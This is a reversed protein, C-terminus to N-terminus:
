FAPRGPDQLRGLELMLRFVYIAQDVPRLARLSWQRGKEALMAAVQRGEEEDALYRVVEPLDNMGLSISIYHLWPQLREDHWERFVTQKLPLSHSNLLRYFRGSHGNGDLDFTLTYRFAEERPEEDHIQFYEHIADETGQDACQVVGTFHVIYLSQNLASSTREQWPENRYPRWLYTHTRGDLNNAFSVFRQRHDQKWAQDAAEQFSGTTKGAWYLGATKNEWPMDESEEYTYASNLYAAAPFPIDGMTSLVAPSLIPVKARTASFSAPSRWIGHMNSYEPHRCLDVTDSKYACLEFGGIASAPQTVSPIENHRCGATIQDWIHQHSLEEWELLEDDEGRVEGLGDDGGRLVRPEDMENVLMSMEPSHALVGAERLLHLVEGGLPECGAQDQRESPRCPSISPGHIKELRRKVEAGSLSWFPALTENIMDFEDIILSDHRTAFDYWIDFRPPPPRKYRRLYESTAMELSTSQRALLEDFDTEAKRVLTKIPHEVVATSTIDLQTPVPFGASFVSFIKPPAPYGLFILLTLSLLTVWIALALARKSKLFFRAGMSSKSSSAKRPLTALGISNTKSRRSFPLTVRELFGDSILFQSRFHSYRSIQTPRLSSIAGLRASFQLLRGLCMHVHSAM